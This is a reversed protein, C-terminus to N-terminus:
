DHSPQVNNNISNTHSIANASLKIMSNNRDACSSALKSREAAIVQAIGVLLSTKPKSLIAPAALSRFQIRRKYLSSLKNVSTIVRPARRSIRKYTSIIEAITVSQESAIIKTFIGIEGRILYMAAVIFAAADDVTIYDRMTDFPVYIQIPLNRLLRRAILAILGQQKGSAQGTGYLTSIRALLVTASRSSLVFDSILSEQRLKERAYATTPAPPTNESIIEDTAGAYIAGASSAFAFSGSAASLLPDSRVLNLLVSLARTESSLESELSSMTGVGAAWYVQWSEETSVNSAFEKVAKQLQVDLEAESNWDFRETPIYLNVASEKLARCLAAGLLGGGGIVWATTV